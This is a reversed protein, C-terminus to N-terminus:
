LSEPAPPQRARTAGGLGVGGPGVLEGADRVQCSPLLM